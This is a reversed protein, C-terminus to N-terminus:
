DYMSERHTAERPLAPSPPLHEIWDELWEIAVPPAVTERSDEVARRLIVVDGFQEVTFRTGPRIQGAQGAPVVLAGNEDAQIVHAMTRMKGHDLAAPVPCEHLTTPNL